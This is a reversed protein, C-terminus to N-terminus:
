EFQKAMEPRQVEVIWSDFKRYNDILDTAENSFMLCGRDDYMWFWRKTNPQFFYVLQHITPDFGMETNAIGKFISKYDFSSRNGFYINLQGNEREVEEGIFYRIALNEQYEGKRLEAKDLLEYLYSPTRAFMDDGFDYTLIYLESDEIHNEFLEIARKTAQEVREETENEFPDGLEFRLHFKLNREITNFDTLNSQSDKMYALDSELQKRM